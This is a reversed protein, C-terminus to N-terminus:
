PSAAYRTHLLLEVIERTCEHSYGFRQNMRSLVREVESRAAPELEDRRNSLFRLLWDSLRRVSDRRKAFDHDALRKIYPAFLKALDPKQDPNDLAFAGIRGVVDQRFRKPDDGPALIEELRALFATDVPKEDGSLPDTVRKGALWAAAQAVYRDLLGGYQSVEVKELAAALEGDIRSLYHERVLALLRHPDHYDGDAPRQLWEYVSPDQILRRIEEELASFGIVPGGTREALSQLLMKGERPSAGFGGEYPGIHQAQRRLADREALFAKSQATNMWAPAQTDAYALAKELPSLREMLPAVEESLGDGDPRALRTLVLWLAAMEVVHPCFPRPARALALQSDYIAQEAHYDLLYPVRVLEMRGKFSMFDPTQKFADLYKDNVSGLLVLDLHFLAIDLNLTGRECTALLYKFAELPRKLLDAFEILGHNAAILAGQAEYLNLNQLVPPLAALSRDVTLQQLHADVSMQPEVSALGVKYRASLLYREVQVHRWVQALDGNYATFLADFIQRNKPSLDGDLLAAAHERPLFDPHEAALRAFWDTRVERPLLLLPSDRLPCSIRAAVRNEPLHAYSALDGVVRDNKSFGIEERKLREDPFIWNFRYLAGEPTASYAELGAALAAALSSKASGNPGVLLILKDARRGHAFAHLIRVIEEEVAGQGWVRGQGDLFPLDFLAYGREPASRPGYYALADALYTYATRTYRRPTARVQELFAPLGLVSQRAVFTEQTQARAHELFAETNPSDAM